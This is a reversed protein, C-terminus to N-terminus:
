PCISFSNQMQVIDKIAKGISKTDCEVHTNEMFSNEGSGPNWDRRRELNVFRSNTGRPINESDQRKLNGRPFIRLRRWFVDRATEDRV